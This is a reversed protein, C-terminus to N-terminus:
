ADSKKSLSKGSQVTLSATRFLQEADDDLTAPGVRPCL